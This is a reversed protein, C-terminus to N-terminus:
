PRRLQATSAKSPFIPATSPTSSQSHYQALTKTSDHLDARQWGGYVTRYFEFRNGEIAAIVAHNSTERLIEAM